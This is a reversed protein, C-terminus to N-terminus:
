RATYGLSPRTHGVWGWSGLLVAVERRDILAGRRRISNKYFLNKKSAGAQQAQTISNETLLMKRQPRRSDGKNM